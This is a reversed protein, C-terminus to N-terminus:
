GARVALDDAYATRGTDADVIAIRAGDPLLEPLLLWRAPLKVSMPGVVDRPMVQTKMRADVRGAFVDRWAPDRGGASLEWSQLDYACWGADPLWVEAWYHVGPADPYLLYGGVLRAPIGLARCMTAFLAAGLQCDCWGLDLLADAPRAPDVEHYHAMGIAMRDIVGAWLAAAVDRPDTRRAALAHALEATRAGVRVFGEAPHTFRARAEADLVPAAGGPAPARPAPTATFSARYALRAQRAGSVRVRAELRGPRCVPPALAHEPPDVDVRLAGLDAGELPLPARLRVEVGPEFAALDFHREFRVDFRRSPWAARAPDGNLDAFLRRATAVCHEPWYDDAGALAARKKFNLVEAPDFRREGAPGPAHPLGADAWRALARRAGARAREREGARVAHVWGSALLMEVIADEGVCRMTPDGRTGLTRM